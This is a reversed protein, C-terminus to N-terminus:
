KLIYRSPGAESSAAFTPDFTVLPTSLHALVATMKRVLEADGPLSQYFAWVRLRTGSASALAYVPDATRTGDASAPTASLKMLYAVSSADPAIMRRPLEDSGSTDALVYSSGGTVLSARTAGSLKALSAQDHGSQGLQVVTSLMMQSTPRVEHSPEPATLHPQSM